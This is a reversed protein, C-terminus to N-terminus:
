RTHLTTSRRVILRGPLRQLRGATLPPNQGIRSILRRAATQGLDFTPQAISTIGGMVYPAWEPDDIAMLGLDDPVQFGGRTLAELAFLTTVVNACLIAGHGPPVTKVMQEIVQTLDSPNPSKRVFVEVSLTASQRAKVAQARENRSTVHESPDTVYLVQRYGQRELHSLALAIAGQNDLLITDLTPTLDIARDILVVPINEDILTKLATSPRNDCSQLLLGEIRQHLLREITKDECEWDNQANSILLSYGYDNVVAEIGELVALVYANRLDAVIAGILGSRRTKLSRAWANPRYDLETIAEAIRQATNSALNDWNGNLYRSVTTRSVGAKLAVDSITPNRSAM